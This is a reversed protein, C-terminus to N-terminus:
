PGGGVEDFIVAREGFAVATNQVSFRDRSLCMSSAESAGKGGDHM